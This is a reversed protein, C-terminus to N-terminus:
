AKECAIGDKDRDLGKNHRMATKYLKTSHRFNTVPTGSTKDHANARGVGHPYKHNVTTCNKWTGTAAADAPGATAALSGSVVLACVVAALANRTSPM